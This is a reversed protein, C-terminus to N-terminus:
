VDEGRALRFYYNFSENEIPFNRLIFFLLITVVIVVFLTKSGGSLDLVLFDLRGLIDVVIEFYKLQVFSITFFIHSICAPFISSILGLFGWLMTSELVPLILTNALISVVSFSGFSLVSVPLTSLTCSMTTLTYEKFTEGMNVNRSEAFNEISPSLYILGITALISLQFGVDFAVTPSFFVFLWIGIVFSRHISQYRGFLGGILTMSGMISARVISSSMGSMLCFSWIVVLSLLNRKRKDLFQFIRNVMLILITVNYGSAAVIHSTGSKRVNEEFEETFVRDEGLLIGSLLSVQPETMSNELIQILTQKLDYLRSKVSNDRKIYEVYEPELIGYVNRNRLFKKYDFDDFNEPEGFTGCIKLVDGIKYRPFNPQRFIVEGPFNGETNQSDSLISAYYTTRSVSIDPEKTIKVLFCANVRTFSEAYSICRNEQVAFISLRLLCLSLVILIIRLHKLITLLSHENGPDKTKQVDTEYTPGVRKKILLSILVNLSSSLVFGIILVKFNNRLLILGLFNFLIYLLCFLVIRNMKVYWVLASIRNKIRSVEEHFRRPFM